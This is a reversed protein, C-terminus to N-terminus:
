SWGAPVAWSPTRLGEVGSPFSTEVLVRTTAEVVLQRGALVPDTLDLEIRQAPGYPVEQLGEVPVPGSRGVASVSVVGENNDVNYVVLGSEVPDTPAAAVFWTRAVHGDQRATAGPLVGSGIAGDAGETIVREVVISPENTATAFVTAHSGEGLQTESGTNFLVAERALVVLPEVLVPVEIGIFLVDVEVSEATPNFIVYEERIGAGKRGDAFWWQERPTPQALSVQAGERGGGRFHQFRGVVLSGRAVNVDVALIPESQAGAGPAGLDILRISQPAVTLGRYSGPDRFGDQTAFVLDVVVTQDFPNALVIQDLSGEVTYGDALLWRDSTANACATASDGDPHRSRQAVLAGGSEVEVVAGVVASPLTEDLDLTATAWPEVALVLSRVEQQDNIVLVTGRLPSDTRNAVIVEGDVGGVGTAPVGPCFWTELLGGDAPASPMWGEATVSFEATTAPTTDRGYVVLAVIAALVLLLGPLRRKM